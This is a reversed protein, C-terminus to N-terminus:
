QSFRYPKNLLDGIHRMVTTTIRELEEHSETTVSFRLPEGIRITIFGKKPFFYERLSGITTRTPTGTYGVPLIPVGSAFALRAVGTKGKGLEGDWSRTGEPFILVPFGRKLRDIAFDLVRNPHSRFVPMMGLWESLGLAHFFTWVSQKTLSYVRQETRRMTLAALLVPELYSVHNSALIFPGHEPLREIGEVRIRRLIHPLITRTLFSGPM